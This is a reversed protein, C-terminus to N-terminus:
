WSKYLVYVAIVLSIYFSWHDATTALRVIDNTPVKASQAGLCFFGTIFGFIIRLAFYVLIAKIIAWM